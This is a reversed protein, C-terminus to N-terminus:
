RPKYIIIPPLHKYLVYQQEPFPKRVVSGFSKLLRNNVSPNFPRYFRGICGRNQRSSSLSMLNKWERAKYKELAVFLKFPTKISDGVSDATITQGHTIILDSWSKHGLRYYALHHM